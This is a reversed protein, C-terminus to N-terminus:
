LIIEALKRSLRRSCCTPAFCNHRKHIECYSSDQAIVPKQTPQQQLAAASTSAKSTPKNDPRIALLLSYDMIAFSELVLVDRELTKSVIQYVDHDLLLGNPYVEMFDLDKMTPVNTGVTGAGGDAQYARHYRSGKLDFKQEVDNTRIINNMIVLRMVWTSRKVVYLGFFRPLFTSPNQHINMYYEPLLEQLFKAEKKTVTKLVFQRDPSVYFISGSAGANVVMSLSQECLASRMVDDRVNFLKRFHAFAMPAYVKLTFTEYDNQVMTLVDPTFNMIEIYFFDHFLLDRLDSGAVQTLAVDIGLQFSPILRNAWDYHAPSVINTKRRLAKLKSHQKKAPETKSSSKREKVEKGDPNLKGDAEAQNSIGPAEGDDIGIRSGIIQLIENDALKQVEKEAKGASSITISLPTNDSM